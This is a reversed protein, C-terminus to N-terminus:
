YNKQYKKATAFMEKFIQEDKVGTWGTQNHDDTALEKYTILTGGAAKIANVTDRTGSVPVSKDARSHVVWIPINKLVEAKSPDGGGCLPFAATFMEPHRTIIDWTGFGGMSVGYVYQRSEDISYESKVKNYIEIATKMPISEPVADVSYAGKSWPTDVWQMKSPCQPVLVIMDEIMPEKHNFLWYMCPSAAAIDNDSGRHGASHLFLFLPYEKESDYDSPLYLRYPMNLGYSGEFTDAEFCKLMFESECGGTKERHYEPYTVGLMQSKSYVIDDESTMVLRGYKMVSFYEYYLYELLYNYSVINTAALVLANERVELAFDNEYGLKEFLENGGVSGVKIENAGDTSVTKVEVEIGLEDKLKKSFDNLALRLEPESRDCVFAFDTKNNMVLTIEYTVAPTASTTVDPVNSSDVSPEPKATDICSTQTGRMSEAVCGAACFCLFVISVALLACIIRKM